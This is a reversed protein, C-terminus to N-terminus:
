MSYRYTPIKIAKIIAYNHKVVKGYMVQILPQISRFTNFLKLSININTFSIDSSYSTYGETVVNLVRSHLSNNQYYGIVDGSQFETRNDGTCSVNALCYSSENATINIIDYATLACVTGVKDYMTSNQAVPRWIQITPYEGSDAM